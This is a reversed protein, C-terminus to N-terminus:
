EPLVLFGMQRPFRDELRALALKMDIGNSLFRRGRVWVKAQSGPMDRSGIADNRVWFYFEKEREHRPHEFLAVTFRYITRREELESHLKGTEQDIKECRATIEALKGDLVGIERSRQIILERITVTARETEAIERAFRLNLRSITQISIAVFGGLAAGCLLFLIMQMDPLLASFNM